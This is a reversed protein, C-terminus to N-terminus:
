STTRSAMGLGNGMFYPDLLSTDYKSIYNSDIKSIHNIQMINKSYNRNKLNSLVYLNLILKLSIILSARFRDVTRVLVLGVRTKKRKV